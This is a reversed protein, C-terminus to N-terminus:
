ENVGMKIILVRGIDYGIFQGHCRPGILSGFGRIESVVPSHKLFICM